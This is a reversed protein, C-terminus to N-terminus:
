SCGRAPDEAAVQVLEDLSFQAIYENVRLPTSIWGEMLTRVRALPASVRAESRWSLAHHAFLLELAVVTRALGLQEGLMEVGNPAMSCYDDTGETTNPTISLSCPQALVHARAATSAMSRSANNLTMGLEADAPAALATPLGSFESWVMKSVRQVSMVILRHLSLRLADTALALATGDFNGSVILRRQQVDVVPNDTQANLLSQVQSRAFHLVEDCAGHVQVACRFSLPDQLNRARTLLNSGELLARLHDARRAQGPLPRGRTVVPELISPNGDFGELSYAAAVDFADLLEQACHLHLSAMGVSYAQASVLGLGEKPQLTLPKLGARRLAEEGSLRQGRYNAQGQGIMVLGVQAIPALDGEGLSTHNPRVVPHLHANLMNVLLEAVLPRVGSGGQVLGAVRAAMIARVGRESLEHSSLSVAHSTIVQANFTLLQDEPLAYKKLSGLGTNLGYAVTGSALVEEVVQRAEALRQVAEPALRLRAGGAVRCVEQISIAQNWTVDGPVAGTSFESPFGTQASFSEASFHSM